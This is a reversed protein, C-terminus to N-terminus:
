KSMRQSRCRMGGFMPQTNELYLGMNLIKFSQNKNQMRRKKNGIAGSSRAWIQRIRTAKMSNDRFVIPKQSLLGREESDM